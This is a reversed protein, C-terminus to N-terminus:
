RRWAVLAVLQAHSWSKPKAQYQMVLWVFFAQATQSPIPDHFKLNQSYNLNTVKKICRRRL